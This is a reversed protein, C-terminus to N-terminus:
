KSLEFRDMEVWRHNNADDTILVSIRRTVRSQFVDLVLYKSAKSLKGMTGSTVMSDKIPTVYDGIEFINRM